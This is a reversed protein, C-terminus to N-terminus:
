CVNRLCTLTGVCVYVYTCCLFVCFYVSTCVCLARPGPATQVSWPCYSLVLLVYLLTAHCVSPNNRCLFVPKKHAISPMNRSLNPKNCTICPWPTYRYTNILFNNDKCYTTHHMTVLKRQHTKHSHHAHTSTWTPQIPYVSPPCPTTYAETATPAASTHSVALLLYHLLFSQCPFSIKSSIFQLVLLGM